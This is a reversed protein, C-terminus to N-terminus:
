PTQKRMPRCMVRFLMSSLAELGVVVLNDCSCPQGLLGFLSETKGRFSKERGRPRRFAVKKHM